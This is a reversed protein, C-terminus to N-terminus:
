LQELLTYSSSRVKSSPYRGVAAGESRSRSIAGIPGGAGECGGSRPPPNAGGPWLGQGRAPPLDELGGGRAESTPYIRKAMSLASTALLTLYRKNEPM